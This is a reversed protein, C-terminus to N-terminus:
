LAVLSDRLADLIPKLAVSNGSAASNLYEKFTDSGLRSGSATQIAKMIASHLEPATNLTIDGTKDLNILFQKLKHGSAAIKQAGEFNGGTLYRQATRNIQSLAQNALTKLVPRLKVFIKQLAAHEPMVDTKKMDARGKMKEREVGQGGFKGPEEGGTIFVTQLKGIQEALLNFVNDPNQIDKGHHLGMRAKMVTPDTYREEGEDGEAQPRLLAPDVQQGDDTFAIIQYPLTSDGGPDYVKGKKAMAETRDKIYKEYPKIGAVGDSGAVIIFNDPNRKYEKWLLRQNFPAPKLDATNSLKHKRHLWQVLKQGGKEDGILKSLTSETVFAEAIEQDWQIQEFLTPKLKFVETSERLKPTNGGGIARGQDQGKPSHERADKDPYAYIYQGM